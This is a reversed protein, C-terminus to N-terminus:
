KQRSFSWLVRYQEKEKVVFVDQMLKFDGFRSHYLLTVPIRTVNTLVPSLPSMKWSGETIADGLTFDFTEVGFDEMFTNARRQIYDNKNFKEKVLSHFLEWSSGFDGAKEYQYFQVVVEQPTMSSEIPSPSSFLKVLFFSTILLFSGGLLLLLKRIAQHRQRHTVFM